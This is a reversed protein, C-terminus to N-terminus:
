LDPKSELESSKGSLDAPSPEPALQTLDDYKWAEQPLRRRRLSENTWDRLISYLVAFLPTGIIMGTIGWIGGFFLISFLVWFGSVGVSSSLIRPSIINGDVQQLVILFIIFYLAQLPNDLLILLASPIGGIFSGFFPILNTVGVIVGVLLAYDTGIILCGIYCIIGIILSDLLKGSLFGSFAHNAFRLRDIVQRAWREPMAAFLLKKGQLAFQRRNNLWYFSAVVGVILNTAATAAAGVYHGVSSLSATLNGVNILKNALSQATSRASSVWDTASLDADPNIWQLLPEIKRYVELAYGPISQVLISVSDVLRPLVLWLLLCIVLLFTILAGMSAVLHAVKDAKKQRKHFLRAGLGCLLREYCECLPMVLYAIVGGVLFPILINLLTGCFAAVDGWHLLLDCFLILGVLALVLDRVPHKLRSWFPREGPPKGNYDAQIKM